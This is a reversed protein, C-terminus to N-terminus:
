FWPLMWRGCRWRVWRRPRSHLERIPGGARERAHGAHSTRAPSCPWRSRVRRTGARRAQRSPREGRPIRGSRVRCSRVQRAARRLCRDLM